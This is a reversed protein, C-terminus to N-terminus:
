LRARFERVLTRLNLALVRRGTTKRVGIASEGIDAESRMVSELRVDRWTRKTGVASEHVATIRQQEIVDDNQGIGPAQDIL